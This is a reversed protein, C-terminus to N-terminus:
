FNCNRNENYLTNNLCELSDVIIRFTLEMEPNPQENFLHKYKEHIKELIEKYNDIKSYMQKTWNLEIGKQRYHNEVMSIMWLIFYKYYKIYYDKLNDHRPIQQCHCHCVCNDYM